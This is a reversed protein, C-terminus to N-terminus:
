RIVGLLMITILVVSYDYLFPAAYIVVSKVSRILAAINRPGAAVPLSKSNM